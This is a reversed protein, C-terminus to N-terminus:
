GNGSWKGLPADIRQPSNTLWAEAVAMVQILETQAKEPQRKNVAKIVEGLEEALIMAWEDASNNDCNEGWKAQQRAREADILYRVEEKNLIKQPTPEKSESERIASEPINLPVIEFDDTELCEKADKIWQEYNEECEIIGYDQFEIVAHRISDLLAERTYEQSTSCGVGLAWGIWVDKEKRVVAYLSDKRARLQSM